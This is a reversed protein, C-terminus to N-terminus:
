RWEDNIFTFVFIWAEFIEKGATINVKM